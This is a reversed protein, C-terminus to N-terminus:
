KQSKQKARAAAIKTVGFLNSERPTDSGKADPSSKSRSGAKAKSRIISDKDPDKSVIEEIAEDFTKPEGSADVLPVRKGATNPASYGVLKGEEIEFHDEYLKRAKPATILLNKQVYTSNSFANSVLLENNIAVQKKLAKELESKEQGSAESLEKIAKAHEDAMRSKLEDYNKEALLADEEAKKREALMEKVTSADTGFEKLQNKLQTLEEDRANLESKAADLKEKRAKSEAYLQAMATSDDSKPKVTDSTKTTDPATSSKDDTTTDSGGGGSGDPETVEEQFIPSIWFNHNMKSERFPCYDRGTQGTIEAM